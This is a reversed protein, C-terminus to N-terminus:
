VLASKKQELVQSSEVVSWSQFLTGWEWNCRSDHEEWIPCKNRKAVGRNLGNM